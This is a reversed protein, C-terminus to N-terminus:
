VNSTILPLIPRTLDRMLSLTAGILGAVLQIDTRRTSDTPSAAQPTHSPAVIAGSQTGVVGSDACDEPSGSLLISAM